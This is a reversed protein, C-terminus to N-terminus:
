RGAKQTTIHKKHSNIWKYLIRMDLDDLLNYHIRSKCKLRRGKHKKLAHNEMLKKVTKKLDEMPFKHKGSPHFLKLSCDWNDILKANVVHAKCYRSIANKISVNPGLMHVINKLMHNYYEMALDLPINGGIGRRKKIFRNWRYNRAGWKKRLWKKVKLTHLKMIKEVREIWNSVRPAVSFDNAPLLSDDIDQLGLEELTAATVRGILELFLFEKSPSIRSKVDSGINRHNILAADNFMTCPSDASCGSYFNDYALQVFKMGSHFDGVEFHLGELRDETTYGNSIQLLCNVAREVSIQDGVVAQDAFLEGIKGEPKQIPILVGEKIEAPYLGSESILNFIEAIEVFIIEPGYKLMEGYVQDIGPSKGNRLSMVANKIEEKAFLQKMKKPPIAEIEKETSKNFMKDFFESVIQVQKNENTTKGNESDVILKKKEKGRQLQKVAQFMRQSDDKSNEIIEVLDLIDKQNEEELKKHIEKMIKNREVRMEDNKKKNDTSNINNRLTKQQESLKKIEENESKKENKRRGVVEAAAKTCNKVINTWREQVSGPKEKTLNEQLKNQYIIKNDYEKLRQINLKPTKKCSKLEYWKINIKAKVLRHDTFTEIGSYSRADEVFNRHKSRMMIFDIQNRYPNKRINGHKDEQEQRNSPSEWTVRHAMKHPFLTNCLIMNNRLLMEALAGGNSNMTGKGYRGIVEPFEKRGLGTKANQDGGIICIDRKSVEKIVSELEEYFDERIKPNKESVDLTPAYSSIFILNRHNENENQGKLKITAKCIRNSIAKFEANIGGNIGKEVVIGVRHHKNEPNGTHYVKYTKSKVTTTIETVGEEKLKTEQIALISLKYRSMDNAVQLKKLETNLGRVNLTGVNLNCKLTGTQM